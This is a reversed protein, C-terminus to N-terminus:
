AFADQAHQCTHRKDTGADYWTQSGDEQYAGQVPKGCETGWCTVKMDDEDPLREKSQVGIFVADKPNGTRKVAIIKPIDDVTSYGDIIVVTDTYLQDADGIKYTVKFRHSPGTTADPM